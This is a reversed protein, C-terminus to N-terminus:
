GGALGRPFRMRAQKGRVLRVERAGAGARILHFASADILSYDGNEYYLEIRIAHAVDEIVRIEVVNRAPVTTTVGQQSVYNLEAISTNLVQDPPTNDSPNQGQPVFALAVLFPVPLLLKWAKM